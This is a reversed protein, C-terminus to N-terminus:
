RLRGHCGAPDKELEPVGCGKVTKVIVALPKNQERDGIKDMTIHVDWGFSAFRLWLTDLGMDETLGTAGAKNWDVVVVLNGLKLAHALTVAEWVSGECLEADGMVVYVTREQDALAMGIGVGLGHGLSGAVMAMGAVGAPLHPALGTDMGKMAGPYLDEEVVWWAPSAHGKSLIVVDEPKAWRYRLEVLIGVVSLSSALHRIGHGRCFEVVKGRIEEAKNALTTSRSM